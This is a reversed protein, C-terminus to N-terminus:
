FDHAAHEGFTVQWQLAFEWASKRGHDTSYNGHGVQMRLMSFETLWWDVMTSARNSTGYSSKVGNPRRITNTLGVEEWRAGVRWRPAIGYLGQLYYGDQEEIRDRGVVGPNLDHRRVELDKKRHFYEAQLVVDGHGHYGHAYYKYVCDVGWLHSRGHLWHDYAGDASGDHAEQHYGTAYSLGLQLAHHDGLDPGTKLFGTFLRPGAKRPLNDGGIHRFMLENDGQLAETGFLLYFPTPALWTLQLGNEQLGEDGLLLEYVLPQDVFDWFHPHQRNIRGIGSLLRGGSLMLGYPLSTTQIVAEEVDVHDLDIGLITWARFYPDVEATFGLELERINFGQELGHHHGDDDHSHGFGAIEERLHPVGERTDDRFYIMDIVVSIDPLWVGAARAARESPEPARARIAAALADEEFDDEAHVHNLDAWCVFLGLAMVVTLLHKM